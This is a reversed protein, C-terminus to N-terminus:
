GSLHLVVEQCVKSPGTICAPFAQCASSAAWALHSKSMMPMPSARIGTSPPWNQDHNDLFTVFYNSADGHTSLVGSEVQKRYEYM